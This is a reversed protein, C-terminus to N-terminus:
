KQEPKRYIIIVLWGFLALIGFSILTILLIMDTPAHPGAAAMGALFLILGSLMFALMGYQVAVCIKITRSVHEKCTFYIVQAIFCPIWFPLAFSLTRLLGISAVALYFIM